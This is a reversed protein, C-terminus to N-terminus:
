FHETSLPLCGALHLKYAQQHAEGYQLMMNSADHIWQVSEASSSFVHSKMTMLFLCGGKQMVQFSTNRQSGKYCSLTSQYVYELMRM